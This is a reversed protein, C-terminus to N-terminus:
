NKAEWLKITKLSWTKTAPASQQDFIQDRDSCHDPFLPSQKTQPNFPKKSAGIHLIKMNGSKSSAYDCETQNWFQYVPKPMNFVTTWFINLIKKATTNKNIAKICELTSAIM